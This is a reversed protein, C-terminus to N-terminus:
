QVQRPIINHEKKLLNVRAGFDAFTRAPTMAKHLLADRQSLNVVFM